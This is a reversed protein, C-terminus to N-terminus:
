LKFLYYLYPLGEVDSSKLRNLKLSFANLRPKAMKLEWETPLIEPGYADTMVKTVKTSNKNVWLIVMVTMKVACYRIRDAKVKFDKSLKTEVFGREFNDDLLLDLLSDYMKLDREALPPQNKFFGEPLQNAPSQAWGPGALALVLFVALLSNRFINVPM